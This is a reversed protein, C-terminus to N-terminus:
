HPHHQSQTIVAGVDFVSLLSAAAAEFGVEFNIEAGESRGIWNRQM